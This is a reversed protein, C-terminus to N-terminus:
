PRARPFLAVIVQRCPTRVAITRLPAPGGVIPLGAADVPEPELELEDETEITLVLVDEPVEVILWLRESATPEILASPPPEIVTPRTVQEAPVPDGSVLPNL